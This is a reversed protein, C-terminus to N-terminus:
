RGPPPGPSVNKVTYSATMSVGGGGGGGGGGGLQARGAAVLPSGPLLRPPPVVAAAAAAVAGEVEVLEGAMSRRRAERAADRFRREQGAMRREPEWMGGEGGEGGEGGKGRGGMGGEVGPPGGPTTLTHTYSTGRNSLAGGDAQGGGTLRTRTAAGESALFAVASGAEAAGARERRALLGRAAQSPHVLIM